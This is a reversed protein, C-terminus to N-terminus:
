EWMNYSIVEYHQPIYTIQLYIYYKNYINNLINVGM